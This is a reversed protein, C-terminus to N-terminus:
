ERLLAEMFSLTASQIHMQQEERSIAAIGDGSQIGYYGFQAHNGGEIVDVTATAPLLPITDPFTDAAGDETGYLLLTPVQLSSLDNSKAPYAAWLVLGDVMDAHNFLYNAAMSGGLSHGAIVWHRINPYAAMVTEATNPALFAMHLPMPTIVGLYGAEAFAHMPPAYARADVKGGPYFIIGWDTNSSPEFVIWDDQHVTVTETSKLAIRAPQMVPNVTNAWQVFAVAGILLLTLLTGGGVAISFKWSHKM